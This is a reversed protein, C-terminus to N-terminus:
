LPDVHAGLEDHRFFPPARDLGEALLRELGIRRIASSLEVIVINTIFPLPRERAQSLPTWGLHSLEGSAQTFDDPDGLVTDASALFFRADFRKPLAPPTIARFFFRLRDLAPEAGDSRFAEWM